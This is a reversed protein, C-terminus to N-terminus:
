FKRADDSIARMSEYNCDGLRDENDELFNNVANKVVSVSTSTYDGGTTRQRYRVLNTGPPQLPPCVPLPPLVPCTGAHDSRTRAFQYLEDHANIEKVFTDSCDDHLLDAM